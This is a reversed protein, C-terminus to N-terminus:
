DLLMIVRGDSTSPYNEPVIKKYYCGAAGKKIFSKSAVLQRKTLELPVKFIETQIM